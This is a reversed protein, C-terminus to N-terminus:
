IRHFYNCRYTIKKCFNILIKLIQVHKQQKSGLNTLCDFDASFYKNGLRWNLTWTRRFNLLVAGLVVYNKQMFKMLFYHHVFLGVIRWGGCIGVDSCDDLTGCEDAASLFTWKKTNLFCKGSHFEEWMVDQKGPIWELGSFAKGLFVKMWEHFRSLCRRRGKKNFNLPFVETLTKTKRLCPSYFPFVQM